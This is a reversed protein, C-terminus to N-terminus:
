PIDRESIGTGNSIGTGISTGPGKPYIGTGYGLGMSYDPGKPFAGTGYSIGAGQSIGRTGGM